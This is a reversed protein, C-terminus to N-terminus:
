EPGLVRLAGQPCPPGWSRGWSRPLPVDRGEQPSLLQILSLAQLVCDNVHRPSCRAEAQLWIERTDIKLMRGSCRYTFKCLLYRQRHCKRWQHPVAPLLSFGGGSCEGRKGVPRFEQQWETIEPSARCFRVSVFEARERLSNIRQAMTLQATQHSNTGWSLKPWMAQSLHVPNLM